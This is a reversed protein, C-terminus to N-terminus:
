HASSSVSPLRVPTPPLLQLAQCCSCMRTDQIGSQRQLLGIGMDRLASQVIDLAMEHDAIDEGVDLVGISIFENNLLSAISLGIKYNQSCESANELVYAAIKVTMGKPALEHGRAVRECVLQARRALQLAAGSQLARSLVHPTRMPVCKLDVGSLALSSLSAEVWKNLRHAVREDEIPASIDGSAHFAIFPLYYLSVGPKSAEADGPLVPMSPKVGRVVQRVAHPFQLLEPLRYTKVQDDSVLQPLVKVWGQGDNLGLQAQLYAAMKMAHMGPALPLRPLLCVRAQELSVPLLWFSLSGGEPLRHVSIARDMVEALMGDLHDPVQDVIALLDDPTNRLSAAQLLDAAALLAESCSEDSRAAAVEAIANTLQSLTVPAQDQHM